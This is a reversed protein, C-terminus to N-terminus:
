IYIMLILYKFNNTYKGIACLCHYLEYTFATLPVDDSVTVIAVTSFNMQSPRTDIASNDPTRLTLTPKKWSGIFNFSLSLILM